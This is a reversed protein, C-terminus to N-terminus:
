NKLLSSLDNNNLGKLGLLSWRWIEGQLIVTKYFLTIMLIFSMIVCSSDLQYKLLSEESNRNFIYLSLLHSNSNQYKPKFPLIWVNFVNRLINVTTGNLLENNLLPYVDRLCYLFFSAKSRIYGSKQGEIEKNSITSLAYWFLFESPKFQGSPLLGTSLRSCNPGFSLKAVRFCPTHLFHPGFQTLTM